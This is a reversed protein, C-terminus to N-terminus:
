RGIILDAVALIGGYVAYVYFPICVVLQLIRQRITRFGYRSIKGGWMKRKLLRYHHLTSVSSYICFCLGLLLISLPFLPTTVIFMM